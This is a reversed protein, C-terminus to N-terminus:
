FSYNCVVASAESVYCKEDIVELLSENCKEDIVGM